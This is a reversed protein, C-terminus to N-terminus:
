QRSAPKKLTILCNVKLSCPQAQIPTAKSQGILSRPTITTYIKWTMFLSLDPYPAISDYIMGADAMILPRITIDDITVVPFLPM